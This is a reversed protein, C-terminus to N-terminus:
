VVDTKEKMLVDNVVSLWRKEIMKWDLDEAKKRANKGLSKALEDSNLIEQVRAAMDKADRDECILVEEKDKWLYPIEGVLSSVIPIGCAAAEVVAIGFSEYRTTNLYVSHSQYYAGLKENPVKGLFNVSDVLDLEKVLSQVKKLTGKDPGIMNLVLNPFSDKLVKLTEVALEPHYVNTFARVWLLSLSRDKINSYEFRQIDIFNPLYEVHVSAKKFSQILFQSPSLVKNARSFVKEFRKENKEYFENLRGGHLTIIIKKDRKKVIWSAVESIVFAKGSFVDIHAIDYKKFCLTFIIDLLRFLQNEKHSVLTVEYHKSLFDSIKEAVSQTGKKKSLFSGVFIIKESM